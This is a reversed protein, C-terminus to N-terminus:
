LYRVGTNYLVAVEFYEKFHISVLAYYLLELEAVCLQAARIYQYSYTFLLHICITSVM